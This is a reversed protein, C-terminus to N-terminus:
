FLGWETPTKRKEIIVLLYKKDINRRVYSIISLLIGYGTMSIEQGSIKIWEPYAKELQDLTICNSKHATMDLIHKDDILPLEKPAAGAGFLFTLLNNLNDTDISTSELGWYGNKDEVLCSAHLKEEHLLIEMDIQDMAVFTLDLFLDTMDDLLILEVTEPQASDPVEAGKIRHETTWEL